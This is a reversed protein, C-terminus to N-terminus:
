YGPEAAIGNLWNMQERDETALVEAQDLEEYCTTTRNLWNMQERDETALVEAQDLEEAEAQTMCGVILSTPYFKHLRAVM